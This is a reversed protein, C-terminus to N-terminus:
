LFGERVGSYNASEFRCVDGDIETNSDVRCSLQVREGLSSLSPRTIELNLELNQLASAVLPLLLLLLPLLHLSTRM